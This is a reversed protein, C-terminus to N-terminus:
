WEEVIFRGKPILHDPNAVADLSAFSQHGISQGEAYITGGTITTSWAELIVCLDKSVVPVGNVDRNVLIFEDEIYRQKMKDFVASNILYTRQIKWYNGGGLSPITRMGTYTPSGMGTALMANITLTMLTSPSSQPVTCAGLTIQTKVHVGFSSITVAGPTASAGLCLVPMGYSRLSNLLYHSNAAIGFESSRFWYGVGTSLYSYRSAQTLGGPAELYNVRCQTAMGFNEAGNILLTKFSSNGTAAPTFVTDGFLEFRIAPPSRFDGRGYSGALDYTKNSVLGTVLLAIRRKPIRYLYYSGDDNIIDGGGITLTGSTAASVFSKYKTILTGSSILFDGKTSRISVNDAEVTGTWVHSGDIITSQGPDSYWGSTIGNGEVMVCGGYYAKLTTGVASDAVSYQHTVTIKACMATSSMTNAPIYGTILYWTDPTYLTNVTPGIYFTNTLAPDSPYTYTKVIIQPRHLNNTSGGNYMFWAGFCYAKTPDVMISYDRTILGGVAVGPASTYYLLKPAFKVPNVSMYWLLAKDVISWDLLDSVQDGVGGLPTYRFMYPDKVMNASRVVLKDTTISNAVIRGGSILTSGNNIDNGAGGVQIFYSTQIKGGNIITSGANVDAGAGGVVLYGTLTVKSANITIGETTSNISAIVSGTVVPSFNLNAVTVTGAKIQNGEITVGPGAYNGCFDFYGMTGSTTQPLYFQAVLFTANGPDVAYALNDTFGIYTPMDEQWFAYFMKNTANAVSGTAQYYNTTVTGGQSGAWIADINIQQGGQLYFSTTGPQINPITIRGPADTTRFFGSPLLAIYTTNGSPMTSLRDLDISSAVINAGILTNFAVHEGRISQGYIQDGYISHGALFDASVIKGDCYPSYGTNKELQIADICCRQTGASGHISLTARTGSSTAVINYPVYYRLWSGTVGTVTISFGSISHPVYVGPTYFKVNGTIIPNGVFGAKDAYLSLRYNQSPQIYIYGTYNLVTNGTIIVSKDGFNSYSTILSLSYTPDWDNSTFTKEFSSNDLLNVFLRSYDYMGTLGVSLIGSPGVDGYYNVARAAYYYVKGAEINADNFYIKRGTSVNDLVTGIFTTGTPFSTIGSDRYFNYGQLVGEDTPMGSIVLRNFGFDARCEGTVFVPARLADMASKLGTVMPISPSSWEDYINKAKIWFTYQSSTVPFTERLNLYNVSTNNIEYTYPVSFGTVGVDPLSLSGSSKYDGEKRYIMYQDVNAESPAQWGLAIGRVMSYTQGSIWIPAAPPGSSRKLGSTFSGAPFDATSGSIYGYKNEAYLAYKYYKTSVPPVDTFTYYPQINGDTSAIDLITGLCMSDETIVNPMDSSDGSIRYVRHLIPWRGVPNNGNALYTINQWRILFGDGEYDITQCIDVTPAYDCLYGTIKPTSYSSSILGADTYAKVWYSYKTDQLVTGKQSMDDYSTITADTIIDYPKSNLGSGMPTDAYLGLIYTYGAAISGIGSGALSPLSTGNPLGWGSITGDERIGFSCDAGAGINVFKETAAPWDCAHYVSNWGFGTIRGDDMLCVTHNDGCKIKVVGSNPSLFGNTLQGLSDDGWAYVSGDSKLGVSFFLGASIDVFGSNSPPSSAQGKVVGSGNKNNGWGTIAGNKLALGHWGGLAVKEYGLGTPVDTILGCDTVDDVLTNSGWAYIKGTQTTRRIAATAKQSVSIDVWTWGFNPCDSVQGYTDDGAGCIKYDRQIAYAHRYIYEFKTFEVGAMYAPLLQEEGYYPIGWSKLQGGSENTSRYIYYGAIDNRDLRAWRFSIKEYDAKWAYSGQTAILSQINGSAYVILDSVIPSLNGVRDRAQGYVTRSGTVNPLQWSIPVNKDYMIWESNLIDGSVDNAYRVQYIGASNKLGTENALAYDTTDLGSTHIIFVNRSQTFMDEIMNENNKGDGDLIFEYTPGVRDIVFPETITYAGNGLFCTASIYAKGDGLKYTQGTDLFGTINYSYEASRSPRHTRTHLFGTTLTSGSEQIMFVYPDSLMDQATEVTFNLINDTELGYYGTTQQDGISSNPGFVIRAAWFQSITPISSTTGEIAGSFEGVDGDYTIGRIKYYYTLTPGLGSHKYSRLNSPLETLLSYSTGDSSYFIEFKSYDTSDTVDWQLTISEHSSGQSAYFNTIQDPIPQRTGEVYSPFNGIFEFINSDVTGSGAYLYIVLKNWKHGALMLTITSNTTAGISGSNYVVAGNLEVVISCETNLKVSINSAIGKYLEISYAINSYQQINQDIINGDVTSLTSHGLTLGDSIAKGFDTASITYYMGRNESFSTKKWNIIRANDSKKTQEVNYNFYRTEPSYINGINRNKEDIQQSIQQRQNRTM